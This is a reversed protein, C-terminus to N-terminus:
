MGEAVPMILSAKFVATFIAALSNVSILAPWDPLPKEDHLSLIMAIAAICGLALLNSLLELWWTKWLTEDSSNTEERSRDSATEHQATVAEKLPQSEGSHAMRVEDDFSSNDPTQGAANDRLYANSYETSNTPGAASNHSDRRPNTSISSPVITSHDSGIDDSVADSVDSPLHLSLRQCDDQFIYFSTRNPSGTATAEDPTSCHGHRDSPPSSGAVSNTM